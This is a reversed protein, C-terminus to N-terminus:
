LRWYQIFLLWMLGGVNMYVLWLFKTILWIEHFHRCNVISLTSSASGDIPLIHVIQFWRTSCEILV